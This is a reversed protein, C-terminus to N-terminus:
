GVVFGNKLPDAPDVVFRNFGTIYASGTIEPIVAPYDGVQTKRVIKAEYTSGIISEYIFRESMGLKGRAFLAAVMASTGTGCPSRDVESPAVVVNKLNAEPLTPPAVFQVYSVDRISPFEPHRVEIQDNLAHKIRNGVQILNNINKPEVVVGVSDAQLIAFFNGGYAIDAIVPGLGPVEIQVDKKYLFSPVNQFTVSKASGDEVIVRVNVLGAPTDFTFSTVPEKASIYGTEVLATAAGITSHGCMSPYLGGEFFIIGVDAGQEVPETILAGAMVKHGRPEWMLFTRFDDMNDRLYHMKERMSRGPLVPIGEVVTRTPTGGTHTDITSVMRTFRM